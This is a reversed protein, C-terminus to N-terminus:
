NSCRPLVVTTTLVSTARDFEARLSGHHAEFIGRARHLGLAYHGHRVKGLPRTGWEDTTGDFNMKPERLIFEISSDMKRAEFVLAGEGRGHAFANAILEEFAEQLLQPDIEITEDGLSITWGIAAAQEREDRALKARLDEVFERARYPITNLEIKALLNTLRHLHAGLEGTM